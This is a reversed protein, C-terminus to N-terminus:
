QGCAAKALGQLEVGVCTGADCTTGPICFSLADACADGERREYLCTPVCPTGDCFCSLGTACNGVLDQVPDQIQCQEGVKVKAVCVLQDPATTSYTCWGDSACARDSCSEGLKAPLAVQCREDDGCITGAECYAGNSCDEGAKRRPQCRMMGDSAPFCLSLGHCQAYRQCVAGDPLNFQVSPQCGTSTCEYGDACAFSGDSCPDGAGGVPVCQGCELGKKAECENSQCQSRYKCPEGLARTGSELGCDPDFGKNLLDCSYNRWTEACALVSPIDLQSGESFLFDPCWRIFEPCPDAQPEFGICEHYRKNCQANMYTVCAEYKTM